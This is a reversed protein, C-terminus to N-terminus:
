DTKKKPAHRQEIWYDRLDYFEPVHPADKWTVFKAYSWSEPTGDLLVPDPKGVPPHRERNPRMKLHGSKLGVQAFTKLNEFLAELRAKQTDSLREGNKAPIHISATPTLTGSKWDFVQSIYPDEPRHRFDIRVQKKGEESEEGLSVNGEGYMESRPRTPHVIVRTPRPKGEPWPLMQVRTDLKGTLLKKIEARVKEPSAGQTSSVDLESRPTTSWEVRKFERGAEDVRLLLRKAGKSHAPQYDQPKAYVKYPTFSATGPRVQNALRTIRKVADLGAKKSSEHQFWEPAPM